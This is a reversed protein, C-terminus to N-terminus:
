CCALVVITGPQIRPGAHFTYLDADPRETLIRVHERTIEDEDSAHALVRGALPQDNRSVRTVEVVVWQGGFQREITSIRQSPKM